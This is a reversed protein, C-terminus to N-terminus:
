WANEPKSQKFFKIFDYLKIIGKRESIKDFINNADNRSLNGNTIDNVLLLFKNRRIFNNNM